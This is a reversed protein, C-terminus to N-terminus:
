SSRASSARIDLLDLRSPLYFSLAAWNQRLLSSIPRGASTSFGFGIPIFTAADGVGKSTVCEGQAIRLAKVAFCRLTKRYERDNTERAM